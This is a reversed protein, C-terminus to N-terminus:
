TAQQSEKQDFYLQVHGNTSVLRFTITNFQWKRGVWIEEKLEAESAKGFNDIDQGLLDIIDDVLKIIEMIYLHGNTPKIRSLLIILPDGNSPFVVIIKNFFDFSFHPLYYTRLIGNELQEELYEGKEIVDFVILINWIKEKFDLYTKYFEVFENPKFVITNIQLKQYVQITKRIAKKDNIVYFNCTSAFAAHFADETTNKFTEKRGKKVNVRDQHYGHMDLKIYENSIENFWKPANKDSVSSRTESQGIQRYKEQLIEYPNESNSIKDRNIALGSQVIERLDKYRDEENLNKFMKGFAKFFGDMTPNDKLGPFIMELQKAAQPNELTEKLFIDLPIQKLLTIFPKVLNGIVEDDEYHGFLKDISLDEVLEKDDLRQQYYEEPSSFDLIIDKGNNFLCANHTLRTIFNLDKKILEKQKDDDKFSSLIDSIHSTSYPLLIKKNDILITELEPHVGDKIQAMVNWDLYIKVM